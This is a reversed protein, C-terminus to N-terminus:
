EVWLHIRGGDKNIELLEGPPLDHGLLEQLANVDIGEEALAAQADRPLLKAAYQALGIPVSARVNTGDKDIEVRLNLGPRPPVGPMGRLASEVAAAARRAADAAVRAGQAGFVEGFDVDVRFGGHDRDIHRATARPDRTEELRAFVRAWEEDTIRAFRKNLARILRQGDERSIKGNLVLELIREVENM